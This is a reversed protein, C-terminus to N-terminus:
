NDKLTFTQSDSKKIIDSNRPGLYTHTWTGSAAYRTSNGNEFAVIYEESTGIRTTDHFIVLVRQSDRLDYVTGVELKLPKETELTPRTNWKKIMANSTIACSSFVNEKFWMNCNGCIISYHNKPDCLAWFEHITVNNSGCFPCPKLQEEPGNCSCSNSMQNNEEKPKFPWM